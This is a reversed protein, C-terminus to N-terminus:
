IITKNTLKKKPYVTLPLFITGLRFMDAYRGIALIWFWFTFIDDELLVAMYSSYVKLYYVVASFVTNLVEPALCMLSM